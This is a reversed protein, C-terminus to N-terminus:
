SSGVDEFDVTEGTITVASRNVFIVTSFASGSQPWCRNCHCLGTALPKEAIAYRVAGYMCGGQGRFIEQELRNGQHQLGPSAPRKGPRPLVIPRGLVSEISASTQRNKSSAM